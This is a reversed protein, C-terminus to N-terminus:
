KAIVIILTIISLIFSGIPVLKMLGGEEEGTEFLSAVDLNAIFKERAHLEIEEILQPHVFKLDTVQSDPALFNVDPKEELKKKTFAM